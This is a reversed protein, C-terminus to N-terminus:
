EPAPKPKPLFTTVDDILKKLGASVEDITEATRRADENTQLALEDLEKALNGAHTVTAKLLKQPSLQDGANRCSGFAAHAKDLNAKLDAAKTLQPWTDYIFTRAERHEDSKPEWAAKLKKVLAALNPDNAGEQLVKEYLDIAKGFEAQSELLKAREVLARWEQRKPDNEQQLSAKSNKIYSDLNPRQAELEKLLQLGETVDLQKDLGLSRATQELNHLEATRQKIDTKLGELGARAKSLGREVDKESNLEKVLTNQVELSEYLRGRWRKKDQELRGRRAANQDTPVFCVVTQDGVIEIPIQAVDRRAWEVIVFAIHRYRKSTTVFGDPSTVSQDTSDPQFDFASVKVTAGRLPAGTKQDRVLRLRLPAETTGLKLCRFGLVGEGKALPNEYRNWLRCPCIGERPDDLAQLLAWEVRASGQGRGDLQSSRLIKAIAFVDDKKVWRELALGLGGGKLAVRFTTGDASNDDVTGVLGFDQRIMLAATRAVLKREMIRERRVVPSALGTLGDHQRTQIEYAGNVFDVLVFHTKTESVTKWGDLAQQLGKVEVEGLLPHARVVRVSVLQDLDGQLHDHLEREVQEQFVDTLWRHKAIHLVVTLDYPKKFEPDLFAHAFSPTGVLILTAVLLRSM